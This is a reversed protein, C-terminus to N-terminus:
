VAGFMPLCAELGEFEIDDRRHAAWAQRTLKLRIQRDAVDRRMAVLDGNEEYGLARSVGLSPANDHWAGSEAREAGLGAFALHLIAARMEKGIGQGQFEQGLWSGTGVTRTKAFAAAHMGQSGVIHGDVVVAMPLHWDEATWEARCRWFFQMTNRQQEPPKVDTWTIAFPTWSPDHVGRAAVDALEACDADDPYRLELRPTRVRLDFLPWHIDWHTRHGRHLFDLKPELAPAPPTGGARDEGADGESEAFGEFVLLLPGGDHLRRRVAVAIAHLRDLEM